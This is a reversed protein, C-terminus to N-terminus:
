AAGELKILEIDLYYQTKEPLPVRRSGDFSCIQSDNAIIGAKQLCDIPLSLLNDLDGLKKNREHKKTWFVTEPYYFIIKAQLDCTIPQDIKQKFKELRLKMLLENEIKSAEDSKSIFPRGTRKNM